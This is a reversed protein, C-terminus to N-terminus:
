LEKDWQICYTVQKELQIKKHLGKFAVKNHSCENQEKELSILHQLSNKLHALREDKTLEAWAVKTMNTCVIM